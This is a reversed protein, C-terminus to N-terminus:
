GGSLAACLRQESAVTVQADLAADGRRAGLNWSSESGQSRHKRLLRIAACTEPSPTAAMLARVVEPRADGSLRALYAYDIGRTTQARGLNVRAILQDPNLVNFALLTVFASLVIPAGVPQSWGSWVTRALAVLVLALWVIVAMASLRDDTLGFYQVYLQLRLAASLMIAVLLVMLIFSLQRHRLMVATDQIAARTTLILPLVLVAVLVLEFFGRRAYEAVTLGTTNLVAEAGGFLWRLQLAVFTALLVSVVGLATSIEALGLRVPLHSSIADRRSTGLLAGRMWGASWWSFAGIVLVHSALQEGDIVPLQFVSAFVPDARSLLPVFILVLPVTLLVSRLVTWSAGGRVVPLTALDAERGVLMLVGFVLDRVAYVGIAIVDRVRTILVSTVPMAAASMSFMAIAVLTGFVNLVRLVEADRWAVGAACVVAIALWALPESSLPHGIRRAVATATLALSLVWVTWGLGGPANRLAVDAFLGLLAAGVLMVRAARTRTSTAGTSAIHVTGATM